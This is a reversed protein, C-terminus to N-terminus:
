HASGKHPTDPAPAKLLVVAAKGNPVACATPAPAGEVEVAPRICGVSENCGDAETGAGPTAKPAKPLLLAGLKGDKPVIDM